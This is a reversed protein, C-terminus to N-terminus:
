AAVVHPSDVVISAITSTVLGRVPAGSPGLMVVRAREGVRLPQVSADMSSATEAALRVRTPSTAAGGCFIGVAQEPYEAWFEYKSNSTRVVVHDGPSLRSLV